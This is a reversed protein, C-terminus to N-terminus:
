AAIRDAIEMKGGGSPLGEGRCFAVLEDKRWYRDRFAPVSLARTLAPGPIPGTM